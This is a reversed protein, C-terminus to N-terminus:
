DIQALLSDRRYSLWEHLAVGLLSLCAVFIVTGFLDYGHIIAALIPPGCTTGVNGMQAIAGTAYARSEDTVNLAALTAFSAGPVLGTAGLLFLCAIIFAADDGYFFLLPIAAVTTLIYGIQVARVPRVYRLLVIGLTLSTVISALPLSASLGTRHSEAVFSPLYTLVSIYTATYWVFGLAAASTIPSRYISIHLRLIGRLSLAADKQVYVHTQQPAPLSRWLAFALLLMYLSHGLLIAPLGGLKLLPPALLAILMFSLGFFSSWLTMVAPRATDSSHRAMLIPGAIVIALHTAGELIRLLIMIPYPPLLAQIASLVSALVLGVVFARRIGVRTIIIGGFVGLTLGVTGVCSILFGLAVEGVAYVDRFSDLSVAVKGFQAAAGLGALWVLVVIVYDTRPTQHQM